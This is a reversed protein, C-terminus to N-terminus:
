SHAFLPTVDAADVLVDEGEIRVPYQALRCDGPNIGAGTQADFTWQHARCMLVKGDFKGECLPIDQHPCVGQFARVEGGDMGLLVIVHGGVEVETMEGEWVEDLTCVKQFSM